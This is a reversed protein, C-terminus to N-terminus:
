QIVRVSDYGIDPIDSWIGLIKPSMRGWTRIKGPFERAKTEDEFTYLHRWPMTNSCSQGCPGSPGKDEYAIYFM